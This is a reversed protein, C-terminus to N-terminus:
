TAPLVYIAYEFGLRAHQWPRPPPQRVFVLERLLAAWSGEMLVPIQINPVLSNISNIGSSAGSAELGCGLIAMCASTSEAFSAADKLFAHVELQSAMVSPVKPFLRQLSHPAFLGCSHGKRFFQLWSPGVHCGRNGHLPGSACRWEEENLEARMSLM